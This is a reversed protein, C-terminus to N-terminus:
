DREFEAYLGGISVTFRGSAVVPKMDEGVYTVDADTVPFTVRESQGPALNIKRIGRLRKVRPTVMQTHTTLFMLVSEKGERSGTNKVTVSVTNGDAALDSYEFTTYSLGFGFPYEAMPNERYSNSVWHEDPDDGVSVCRRATPKYNYYCPLSGASKPFTIALKGSPNVDGFIINALATGQQEGPYWAEIVASSMEAEAHIVYPRGTVLVLVVPKGVSCVASLLERQIEPLLLDVSDHGEGCTNVNGGEDDGFPGGWFASSNDGLVVVSVDAEEAARVAAEIGGEATPTVVCSGKAYIVKEKGIADEIGQRISVSYDEPGQPVYGGLRPYGANPGIVAVKGINKSLPLTGDNKLLVASEEAARLALAVSKGTHFGSMKERVAYPHEFLGVRFKLRLNNKVAEDIRELPFRGDEVAKKLENGYGYAYPLEQDVGASMALTGAGLADTALHHEDIINRIAGSDSCICGDWGLEKRLVDTLWYRSAHMPIGDIESYAPMIAYAGGDTLCARFPEFMSDRVEREGIESPASNVGGEPCGHALFHKPTAAVSHAQLGKVYRVGMLSTLYPDEGYNEETRGWRPDRSLDVNPAYSQHIGVADAETGIVDAIEGVLEPDFTCGLGICAPFVTSGSFMLGHISEGAIILPIGLRTNEIQCRQVANVDDIDTTNWIYSSGYGLEPYDGNKVTSILDDFRMFMSLQAFKEDLTMRSLLDNVREETPANRDKYLEKEAMFFRLQVFRGVM